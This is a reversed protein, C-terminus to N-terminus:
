SYFHEYKISRILGGEPLHRMRVSDWASRVQSGENPDRQSLLFLPDIKTIKASLTRSATFEVSEQTLSALGLGSKERGRSFHARLASM